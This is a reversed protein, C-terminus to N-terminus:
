ASVTKLACLHFNSTQESFYILTTHLCSNTTSSYCSPAAPISHNCDSVAAPFTCDSALGTVQPADLTQDAFYVLYPNAPIQSQPM